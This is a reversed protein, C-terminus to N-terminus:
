LEVGKQLKACHKCRMAKFVVTNNSDIVLIGNRRNNGRTCACDMRTRYVSFGIKEFRAKELSLESRLNVYITKM